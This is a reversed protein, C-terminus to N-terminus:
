LHGGLLCESYPQLTRGEPRQECRGRELCAEGRQNGKGEPYAEERQDDLNEAAKLAM